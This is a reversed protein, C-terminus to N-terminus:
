SGAPHRGEKDGIPLLSHISCSARRTMWLLSRVDVSWPQQYSGSYFSRGAGCSALSVKGGMSPRVPAMTSSRDPEFLPLWQSYCPMYRYRYFSSGLAQVRLGYPKYRQLSGSIVAVLQAPRAPTNSSLRCKIQM